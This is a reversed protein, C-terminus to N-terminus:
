GVANTQRGENETFVRHAYAYIIFPLANEHSKRWVKLCKAGNRVVTITNNYNIKM